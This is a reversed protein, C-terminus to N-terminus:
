EIHQFSETLVLDGCEWMDWHREYAHDWDEYEGNAVSINTERKILEDDFKQWDFDLIMQDKHYVVKEIENEM